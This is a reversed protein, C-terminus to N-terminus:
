NTITIGNADYIIAPGTSSFGISMVEAGIQEASIQFTPTATIAVAGVLSTAPITLTITENATIGFATYPDGDFDTLTITVTTANTRVVATVPLLAKVVADWGAAEAQASDMGDIINQRQADFTAGAAVWEDGSLTIVITKSGSVIESETCGGPIITGSAAGVTEFEMAGISPSVIHRTDGAYDKTIGAIPLGASKITSDASLSWDGGAKDVIKSDVEVEGVMGADGSEATNFLAYNAYTQWHTGCTETYWHWQYNGGAVDYNNYGLTYGCGGVQYYSSSSYLINNKITLNNADNGLGQTDQMGRGAIMWLTNYYFFAPGDGWGLKAGAVSSSAYVINNIFFLPGNQCAALSIISSVDGYIYNGWIRMNIDDGDMEFADDAIDHITNDHLDSDCWNDGSDMGFGDRSNTLTNNRAVIRAPDTVSQAQIANHEEPSSCSEGCGVNISNGDLLLGVVSNRLEINGGTFTCDKVISYPAGTIDLGADFDIDEIYLYNTDTLTVTSTFHAGLANAAVIKVYNSGDAGDVTITLGSYNGNALTITGTSGACAALASALEADNAVADNCTVGITPVDHSWTTVSDTVPNTGTIGDGDTFTVRVNYLTNRTLYFISTRVQHDFDGGLRDVIPAHATTWGGAGDVQYEVVATMGENDDGTYACRVGISEFTQYLAIAGTTTGNAAFASVPLALLLFLVLKIISQM